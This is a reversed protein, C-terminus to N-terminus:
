NLKIHNKQLFIALSRLSLKSEFQRICNIKQLSLLFNENYPKFVSIKKYKQM